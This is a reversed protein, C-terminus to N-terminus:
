TLGTHLCPMQDLCLCCSPSHGAADLMQQKCLSSATITAIQAECPQLSTCRSSSSRTHLYRVRSACHAIRCTDGCHLSDMSCSSPWFSTTLVVACFRPLLIAARCSHLCLPFSHQQLRSKGNGTGTKKFSRARRRSSRVLWTTYKLRM